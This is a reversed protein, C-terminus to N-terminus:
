KYMSPSFNFWTLLLLGLCCAVEPVLTTDYSLMGDAPSLSNIISIKEKDTKILKHSIIAMIQTMFILAQM